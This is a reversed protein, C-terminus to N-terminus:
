INEYGLEAKIEGLLRQSSKHDGGSAQELVIRRRGERDTEPFKLYLNIYKKLEAIDNVLKVGGSALVPEVHEFKFHRAVSENPPLGSKGNFGIFIVPRDFAAADIALTTFGSILMDSWYLSDILRKEDEMSLETDRISEFKKGPKNIITDGDLAIGEFDVTDAPPCRVLIQHTPPKIKQLIDLIECDFTNKSFFRDGLPAFLIIRKEVKAGIKRYFEDKSNFPGLGYRDYHPIGVVRISESKIGHLKVADRKIIENNVILLEPIVRFGGKGILNDWSRVMGIFKIGRARAEHMLIIDVSSFVDTAFLLDPKYKKWLYKYRRRPMIIEYLKPIFKQVMPAFFFINQAYWREFGLNMERMLERARTKIAASAFDKFIDDIKTLKREVGEVIVNGGGYESEFFEKKKSPVILVIKLNKDEKLQEFFPASFINRSILVHFSTIFITKM